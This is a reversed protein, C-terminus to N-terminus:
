GAPAAHNWASLRFARSPSFKVNHKHKLFLTIEINEKEVGKNVVSLLKALRTFSFTRVKLRGNEPWRKLFTFPIITLHTLIM